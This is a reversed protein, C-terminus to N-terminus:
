WIRPSSSIKQCSCGECINELFKNKWTLDETEVTKGNQIVIKKNYDVDLNILEFTIVRYIQQSNQESAPYNGM